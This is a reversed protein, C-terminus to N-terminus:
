CCRSCQSLTALLPGSLILGQIGPLQCVCTNTHEWSTGLPFTRALACMRCVSLFTQFEAVGRVDIFEWAFDWGSVNLVNKPLYFHLLSVKLKTSCLPQAESLDLVSLSHGSSHFLVLFLYIFFHLHWKLTVCCLTTLSVSRYNDLNYFVQLGCEPRARSCLGGRTILLWCYPMHIWLDEPALHLSVPLSRPRLRGQHLALACNFIGEAQQPFTVWSPLRCVTFLWWCIRRWCSVLKCLVFCYASLNWNM